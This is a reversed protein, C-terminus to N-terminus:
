PLSLSSLSPLLPRPAAHGNSSARQLTTPAPRGSRNCAHAWGPLWPAVPKAVPSWRRLGDGGLEARSIGLETPAGGGNACAWANPTGQDDRTPALLESDSGGAERALRRNRRVLRGSRAPTSTSGGLISQAPSRRCPSARPVAGSAVVVPRLPDHGPPEMALYREGLGSAFPTASLAGIWWWRPAQTCIGAAERAPVRWSRHELRITFDNAMTRM